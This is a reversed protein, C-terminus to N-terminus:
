YDGASVYLEIIARKDAASLTDYKERMKDSMARRGADFNDFEAELYDRWQGASIPLDSEPDRGGDYHCRDCKEAHIEAGRRALAADFPQEHPQWPQNAYYIVVAWEDADSLSDAVEVMDTETGDPLEVARAKRLGRRYTDLLDMTALMPFGAISPMDRTQSRGGEGHCEACRSAVQEGTEAIGAQAAPEAAPEDGQALAIGGLLALIALLEPKRKLRWM